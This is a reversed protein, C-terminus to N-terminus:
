AQTFADKIREFFGKEGTTPMTPTGLTKALEEFLRKQQENLSQPIVVTVLVLQDGRRGTRLDPVGKERLRFVQGSQTGPPIRLSATGELTPVEIEQGLTAQAVNIPLHYLIDNGERQFHQHRKVLVVVYLNGSPGGATGSDGEGTLRIQSGDDIGAPIKVVIHRTRREKGAGQCQSCPQTIIRGEGGCRNCTTVNVFQGFISQQVRRIEGTGRCNPCRSPQSGPESGTGRCRGCTELRTLELEKEVGFVAEEFTLTLDYRLDVGRQPGRRRTTTAGGFFTDFIDGFGGFGSFGEFGSGSGFGQPGAHGFHDYTARKEPNSLVEYAENIEKFKEEADHNKNRDPHYQFALKRFARRVEEETASRDVGLVEYYDRKTAM